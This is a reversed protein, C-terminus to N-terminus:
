GCGMLQLVSDILQLDNAYILFLSPGLSSIQPVSITILITASLGSAFKVIQARGSTYSKILRLFVM